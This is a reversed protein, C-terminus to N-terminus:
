YGMEILRNEIVEYGREELMGILGKRKVFAPTYENTQECFGFRKQDPSQQIEMINGKSNIMEM